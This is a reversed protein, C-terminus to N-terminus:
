PKDILNFNVIYEEQQKRASEGNLYKEIAFSAIPAAIDGGFGANEVYVAIAIKPDDKPAFAYFVSHDEGDSQSNESTGTKGCIDIGRVYAKYGTGRTITNYMGEIVPKFHEKNIAVEKRITYKSDISESDRSFGKVLHPTFYYGRNALIAALNAMQLTTLELEGQGIGISMIYTSYWRGGESRYLYKYYEPTPVFGDGEYHLDVGLKQGLGFQYLYDNIKNLGASPNNFGKVELLERVMAFFYSNCSHMLATQINYPAPHEHCGYKFTKYQYYSKCPVYTNTQFVGEQLAILSLIPKFISGPPYRAGISRDLLPKQANDATLEEFAKSRDRDLNLKNPDYSPASVMALIEGSSPEIAVISGRKNQMLKECYAQLDLDLTTYLDMGEVATSDLKGESFSDVERGLNDRLLFKVGKRGRLRSEYFRELGSMGIYDGPSYVNDSKEIAERDVEGLYGLVHAANSHPYARINRVIPYFGPFRFMQEQFGAYVQHDIKSLFTFPLSKHYRRDNWNKNLRSAFENDDINLLSCFLSTDMDSKVNRYIAELDYISKNYTLLKGNRDYMLGRSPYIIQKDLVTKQALQKYSDDFLQLQALKIGLVLAGILFSMLIPAQRNNFQKM